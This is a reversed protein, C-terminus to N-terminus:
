RFAAAAAPVLQYFINDATPAGALVIAAQGAYNLLLSPFVISTGPSASRGTGFHGMDAYLAEAGTVCLFVGGLM